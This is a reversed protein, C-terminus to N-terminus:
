IKIFFHNLKSTHLKENEHIDLDESKISPMKSVAKFSQKRILFSNESENIISRNALQANDFDLDINVFELLALPRQNSQNLLIKSSNLTRQSLLSSKSSKSWITPSSQASNINSNTQQMEIPKIIQTNFRLLNANTKSNQASLQKFGQGLESIKRNRTIQISDPFSRKPEISQNSPTKFASEDNHTTFNNNENSNIIRPRPTTPKPMPSSNKSRQFVKSELMKDTPSTKSFYLDKKNLVYRNNFQTSSPNKSPSKRHNLENRMQHFIKSIEEDSDTFTVDYTQNLGPNGSM